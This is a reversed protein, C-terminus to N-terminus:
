KIIKYYIDLSRVFSSSANSPCTAYLCTLNEIELELGNYFSYNVAAAAFM